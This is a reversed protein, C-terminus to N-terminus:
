AVIAILPPPVVFIPLYQGEEWATSVDSDHPHPSRVRGHASGYCSLM